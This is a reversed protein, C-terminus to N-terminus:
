VIKDGTYTNTDVVVPLISFLELVMLDKMNGKQLWM